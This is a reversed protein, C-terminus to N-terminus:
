PILEVLTMEPPCLFRIRPLLLGEMGIGRSVYLTTAGLQYRGMEYRKGYVSFTVLAGYFPLRIQGGHTHGSLYLDIGHASATEAVDPSHHLLITYDAPPASEAVRSLMQRDLLINHTMTVGILNLRGGPLSLSVVENELVRINELERFLAAMLEPPDVSGLVAYVGLPAELQSLLWRTDALTKPDDIYDINVYDGTLLILDPRLAEAKALVTRERITIREVHVDTLHLIRLSRNPFLMPAGSVSLTSVELQFPEIYLGYFALGTLTTQLLVGVKALAVRVSQHTLALPLILVAVLVMRGVNLLFGASAVLGYSLQLVSLLTLLAWDLTGILVTAGGLITWASKWDPSRFFTRRLTVYLLSPLTFLLFALM